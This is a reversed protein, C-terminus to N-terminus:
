HQAGRRDVKIGSSTWTWLKVSADLVFTGNSRLMKFTCNRDAKWTLKKFDPSDFGQSHMAKDVSILSMNQQPLYHVDVLVLEKEIGSTTAVNLTVNGVGSSTVREGHVVDFTKTRSYDISSFKSLDDCIHHSACSDVGFGCYPGSDGANALVGNAFRASVVKCRLNNQFTIEGRSYYCICATICWFITTLIAMITVFGFTRTSCSPEAAATVGMLFGPTDDDHADKVAGARLPIAPKGEGTKLSPCDRHRHGKGCFRCPGMKDHWARDNSKNEKRPKTEKSTTIAAVTAALKAVTETLDKTSQVSNLVAKQRTASPAHDDDDSEFALIYERIEDLLWFSKQLKYDSCMSVALRFQSWNFGKIASTVYSWMELPDLKKARASEFAQTADHFSTIEDQITNKDLKFRFNELKAKANNGANTSVPEYTQLLAFLARRGDKKEELPDHDSYRYRLIINLAEGDCSNLLIDFVHENLSTIFDPLEQDASFEKFINLIHMGAEIQAPCANVSRRCVSKLNISFKTFSVSSKGNAMLPKGSFAGGTIKILDVTSSITDLSTLVRHHADSFEGRSTATPLNDQRVRSATMEITGDISGPLSAAESM